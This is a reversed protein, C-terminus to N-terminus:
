KRTMKYLGYRIHQEEASVVEQLNYIQEIQGCLNRFSGEATCWYSRHFYVHGQYKNMLHDIIDPNNIGAFAQIASHGWLMFMSPVHTVVISREPVAKLFARAHDHDHRAGWAEQGVQRIFPLFPMWVILLVVMVLARIRRRAAADGAAANCEYLRLLADCLKGTGIGALVALPMFSLLAFRVDAGYKYSGAYFFLFIGWFLAFWLLMLLGHKLGYLRTTLAGQARVPLFAALALLTFVAPFWENNFYYLGNIRFNAHLFDISFKAGTAGWAEGSTAYLHLLHPFLLLLSLVGTAWLDRRLFLRPKLAAVALVAWAGILASEPRMQCALPLVAALLLLHRWALTHMWLLLCLVTLGGMFAASPEAAMTNSWVLAHPICAFLLGAMWAAFFRRTGLWAIAFVILAGAAHLMNNLVFAYRENVGFAEFVLSMLFPWGNPEKNYVPWHAFYEGYEFISYNSIAAKGALALTQGVNGYIDEDYYIRHIQPPLNWVMLLAIFFLAALLLRRRCGAQAKLASWIRSSVSTHATGNCIAPTRSAPDCGRPPANDSMAEPPGPAQQPAASAPQDLRRFAQLIDRLSFLLGAALLLLNVRLVWPLWRLLLAKINEKPVYDVVYVFAVALAVYCCAIIVKFPVGEAIKQLRIKSM